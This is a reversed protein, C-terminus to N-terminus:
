EARDEDGIGFASFHELDYKFDTCGREALWRVLAPPGEIPDTFVLFMFTLSAGKRAVHGGASFRDARRTPRTAPAVMPLRGFMAALRQEHAAQRKADYNKGGDNKFGDEFADVVAPDIGPLQRVKALAEARREDVIQQQETTLREMEATEGRRSADRIARRVKALRADNKDDYLESTAKQVKRYTERAVRHREREAPTRPDDPHWPPVLYGRRGAFRFYASLEVEIAEAADASPATCYLRLAPASQREVFVRKTRSEMFDLWTRRAADADGAGTTDKPLTLMVTQGFLLLGGRPPLQKAADDFADEARGRRDFHAVVVAHGSAEPEAVDEDAGEDDSPEPPADVLADAAPGASPAVGATRISAPDLPTDAERSLRNAWRGLGGGGAGDQKWPPGGPQMALAFVMAAVLTVVFAGAHLAGLGLTAVVGPPKANITEYVNLAHQAAMKNGTRPGFAMKVYDVIVQAVDTPITQSDPSVSPMGTRSLGQAIKATRYAAPITVLTFIGLMLLFRDGTALTILILLGGAVARFAVDLLPHRSFLLAHVVRGGDLPLIPLLNLGNLLLAAMASKLLLPDYGKRMGAIGLAVGAAIGPLPGALAVIVKKWGAVNYHQGSVAAGMMPIFFM